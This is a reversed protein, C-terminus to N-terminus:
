KAAVAVPFDLSIRTTEGARVTVDRTVTEVKGDRVVEAKLTYQYQQGNQLAPTKFQRESSTSTTQYSDITLKAEAPLTVVLMAEQTPAPAVAAYGYGPAAYSYCCGGSYCGGSYCGGSYCGGSDCCGSDCSSSCSSCCSKKHCASAFDGTGFTGFAALAVIVFLKRM